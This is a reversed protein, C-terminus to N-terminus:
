RQLGRSSDPRPGRCGGAQAPGARRSLHPVLQRRNAETIREPIREPNREPNWEGAEAERGLQEMTEAREQANKRDAEAQLKPLSADVSDRVHGIDALAGSGSQVHRLINTDSDPSIWDPRTQESAAGVVAAKLVQNATTGDMTGQAMWDRAMETLTQGAQQAKETDSLDAQQWVEDIALRASTGATTVAEQKFRQVKQNVHVGVLGEVVEPLRDAFAQRWAEDDEQEVVQGAQETAWERLSGADMAQLNADTGYQERLNHGAQTAAIAARQQSQREFIRKAESARRAHYDVGSQVGQRLNRLGEAVAALGSPAPPAVPAAQPTHYTDVPASRPASPLNQTQVRRTAM